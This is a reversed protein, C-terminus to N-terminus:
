LIPSDDFDTASGIETVSEGKEHRNDEDHDFSASMGDDGHDDLYIRHGAKVMSHASFTEGTAKCCHHWGHTYYKVVTVNRVVEALQIKEVRGLRGKEKEEELAQIVSRTRFARLQVMRDVWVNNANLYVTDRLQHM